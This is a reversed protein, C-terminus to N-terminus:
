GNVTWEEASPLPEWAQDQGFHASFLLLHAARLHAFACVYTIEAHRSYDEAIANFVTWCKIM